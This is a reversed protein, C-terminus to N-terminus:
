KGERQQALFREIQRHYPRTQVVLLKGAWARLSPSRVINDCDAPANKDWSEPAVAQRLEKVLNAEAAEGSIGNAAHMRKVLDDIAYFVPYLTRTQLNDVSSIVIFGERVGWAVTRGNLAAVISIIADQATANRISLDIKEDRNINHASLQGWNVYINAGSRQRIIDVAQKVPVGHLSLDGISRSLAAPPKEEPLLPDPLSDHPASGSGERLQSLLEAVKGHISPIQTIILRGSSASMSGLTGGADEWTESAVTDEILRILDGSADGPEAPPADLVLDPEDDPFKKREEDAGALLDRIDYIRVVPKQMDDIGSRTAILLRDNGVECDPGGLGEQRTQADAATLVMPLLEELRGDRLDFELNLPRDCPVGAKQLGEWDVRMNAQSLADLTTLAQRLTPHDLKVVPMMYGYARGKASMRAAQLEKVNQRHALLVGGVIAAALLVGWPWM